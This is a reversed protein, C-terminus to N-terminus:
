LSELAKEVLKKLEEKKPVYTLSVSPLMEMNTGKLFEEIHAISEGSWGYSGFALGIRKKPKLGKLYTLFSAVTPLMQNNVTSSGVMIYKANIVEAMVDSIHNQGLSMLHYPIGKKELQSGLALAITKTSEWMSDYLILAKDQTEHNAWQQYKELIKAINKRWIIGHSTAIMTVNNLKGAEELAKKVPMDFPLVINAYYKEAEVMIDSLPLEDDFRQSTALHQGFADNSFLIGEEELFCMMSDPWHVMPVPVFSFTYKGTKLQSGLKMIEFDWGTTDFHAKLGKEGNFSTLIKAKPTLPKLFPLAGSHDFEVHNSVIYDIQNPNIVSSIRALMEEFFPAKVTDILTIKEDVILYANYTSGRRTLYGHFNKLDWDIAGVWYIGKKLEIAKM